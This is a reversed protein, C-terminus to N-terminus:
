GAHCIAPASQELKLLNCFTTAGVVWTGGQKVAIGVQNKLAPKGALLITYTVSASTPTTLRVQAVKVTTGKALASGAQKNVVAAFASGHQVLKLKEAAPTTGSFFSVFAKTVATQQASGSSGTSGGGGSPGAGSGGSSGTSTPHSPPPPTASSSGGGCGALATATVLGAAIATARRLGVPRSFQCVDSM